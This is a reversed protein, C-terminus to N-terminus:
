VGLLKIAVVMEGILRGVGQTTPVAMSPFRALMDPIKGVLLLMSIALLLQVLSDGNVGASTFLALGLAFALFQVFQTFTVVLFLRGWFSFVQSTAPLFTCLFAIPSLVFLLNWLVLRQFAQFLIRIIGFNLFVVIILDLLFGQGGTIRSGTNVTAFFNNLNTNIADCLENNIQLLLSGFFFSLNMMLGTTIVKPVFQSLPISLSGTSESIMMQIIGTLILLLFFANAIALMTAFTGIVVTNATTLSEPTTRLFQAFLPELPGLIATGFQGNPTNLLAQLAQWALAFNM